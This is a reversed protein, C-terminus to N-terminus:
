GPLRPASLPGDAGCQATSSREDLLPRVAVGRALSCVDCRFRRDDGLVRECDQLQGHMYLDCARRLEGVNQPASLMMRPPATEGLSQGAARRVAANLGWENAMPYRHALGSSVDDLM